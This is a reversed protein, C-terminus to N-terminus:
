QRKVDERFLRRAFAAAAVALRAPASAEFAQLIV